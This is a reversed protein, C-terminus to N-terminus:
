TGRDIFTAALRVTKPTAASSGAKREIQAFLMESATRGILDAHQDFTSVPIFYGDGMAVAGFGILSVDEPIRRGLKLLARRCGLALNDNVAFIGDVKAGRETLYELIADENPSFTPFELTDVTVPRNASAVADRFGKARDRSPSFRDGGTVLLFNKRGRALLRTGAEEGGAVDDTGVFDCAFKQVRRDIVVIPVNRQVIEEFYLATADDNAPRLIIGDVRLEILRHLIKREEEIAREEWHVHVMSLLLGADQESLHDHIGELVGSYFGLGAPMVVGILGTRGTQMGRVLRNPRYQIRDAVERISQATEAAVKGTGNMFRSVTMLSVGVERAIVKMSAREATNAM